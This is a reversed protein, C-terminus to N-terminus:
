ILEDDRWAVGRWAMRWALYRAHRSSFRQHKPRPRLLSSLIFLNVANESIARFVLTLIQALVGCFLVRAFTAIKEFVGSEDETTKM